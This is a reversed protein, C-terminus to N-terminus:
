YELYYCDVIKLYSKYLITLAMLAWVWIKYKM